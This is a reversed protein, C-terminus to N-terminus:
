CTEDSPISAHLYAHLPERKHCESPLSGRFVQQYDDLVRLHHKPLGHLVAMAHDYLESAAKMRNNRFNLVALNLLALAYCVVQEGSFTKTVDLVRLYISEAEECRGEECLLVALNNLYRAFVPDDKDSKEFKGLVGRILEEAEKYKHQMRYHLVFADFDEELELSSSQREHLAVAQKYLPEAEEHKDQACLSRGLCRLITALQRDNDLKQVELLAERFHQEAEAFLEQDFATQGLWMQSVWHNETEARLPKVPPAIFFPREGAYYFRWWLAANHEKRCQDSRDSGLSNWSEGDPQTSM